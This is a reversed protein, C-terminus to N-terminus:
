KSAVVQEGVIFKTGWKCKFDEKIIHLTKNCCIVYFGMGEVNGFEANISFNDSVELTSALDDGEIGFSIEGDWNDLCTKRVINNDRLQMDKPILAMDMAPEFM